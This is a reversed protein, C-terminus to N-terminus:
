IWSRASVSGRSSPSELIAGVWLHVSERNERLNRFTGTLFFPAFHHSNNVRAGKFIRAVDRSHSIFMNCKNQVRYQLCNVLGVFKIAIPSFWWKGVKRIPCRWLNESSAKYRWGVWGVSRLPQFFDVEGGARCRWDLCNTFLRRMSWSCTVSRWGYVASIASARTM